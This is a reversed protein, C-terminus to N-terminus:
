INTTYIFNWCDCDTLCDGPFHSHGTAFLWIPLMSKKVITSALFALFVVAAICYMDVVSDSCACVTVKSM